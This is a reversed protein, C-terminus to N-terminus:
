GLPSLVVDEFEMAAQSTVLGIYGNAVGEIVGMEVDDLLMRATGERIEVSMTHWDATVFGAPVPTAGIFSYDGNSAYQAWRATTGGDALDFTFALPRGGPEPLGFVVGGGSTGGDVPRVRADLRFNGLPGVNLHSMLDFGGGDTQRYAGDVLEWSGSARQWNAANSDFNETMTGEFPLSGGVFETAGEGGTEGGEEAAGQEAAGEDTGTEEAPAEEAVPEEVAPEEVVPESVVVDTATADTPAIGAVIEIALPDSAQRVPAVM